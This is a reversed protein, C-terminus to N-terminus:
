FKMHGAIGDKSLGITSIILTFQPLSQSFIKTNIKFDPSSEISPSSALALCRRSKKRIHIIVSVEDKKFLGLM